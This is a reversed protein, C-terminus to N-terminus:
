GVLFRDLLSTWMERIKDRELYSAAAVVAGVLPLLMRMRKVKLLFLERKKTRLEVCANKCQLQAFGDSPVPSSMSIPIGCPRIASQMRPPPTPTDSVSACSAHARENRTSTGSSPSPQDQHSLQRHQPRARKRCSPRAEKSEPSM